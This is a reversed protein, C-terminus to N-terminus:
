ESNNTRNYDKEHLIGEKKDLRQTLIKKIRSRKDNLEAIKGATSARSEIMKASLARLESEKFWIKLNLISLLDILEGTDLISEEAEKSESV